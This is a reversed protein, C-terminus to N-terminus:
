SGPARGRRVVGVGFPVSAAAAVVVLGVLGLVVM